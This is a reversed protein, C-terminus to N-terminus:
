FGSEQGPNSRTPAALRASHWEHHPFALNQPNTGIRNLQEFLHEFTQEFVWQILHVSLVDHGGDPEHM